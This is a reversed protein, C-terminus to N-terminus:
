SKDAKSGRRKRPRKDPGRVRRKAPASAAPALLAVVEAGFEDGLQQQLFADGTPVDRLWAAVLEAETHKRSQVAAVGDTLAKDPQKGTAALRFAQARMVAASTGFVESDPVAPATRQRDGAKQNYPNTLEDNM